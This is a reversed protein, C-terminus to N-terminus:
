SSLLGIENSSRLFFNPKTGGCAKEYASVNVSNVSCINVASFTTM